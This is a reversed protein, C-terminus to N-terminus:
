HLEVIDYEDAKQKNEHQGSWLKESTTKDKGKTM